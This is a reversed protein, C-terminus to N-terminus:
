FINKANIQPIQSNMNYIFKKSIKNYLLKYSKVNVYTTTPALTVNSEHSTFLTIIFINLVLIIIIIIIEIIEIPHKEFLGEKKIKNKKNTM